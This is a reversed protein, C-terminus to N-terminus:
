DVVMLSVEGLQDFLALVSDGADFPVAKIFSGSLVVDGPEMGVDFEHLKNALWAVANIPNGMVAAASGTEMIDGSISLSASVRRIDLDGLHVPNGGLVVFGCSAADSISDVLMTKGRRAFRSDVIELAPLVFDTARIVDAANVHPGHLPVGMVFALEVEVLPRNMRGRSVTSGEAVFWDDYLFGYDPETANTLSRMAKSTLGIKHGKVTHGDAVKLDRVALGIRYADEVDADEWRDSVPDTWEGTAEAAVIAKAAELHQDASLNM